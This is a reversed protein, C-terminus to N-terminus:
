NFIFPPYKRGDKFNVFKKRGLHSKIIILVLPKFHQVHLMKFYFNYELRPEESAPKPSADDGRSRVFRDRLTFFYM